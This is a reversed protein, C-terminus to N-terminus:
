TLRHLHLSEGSGKSSMCMVNTHLSLGVKLVTVRSSVDAHIKLLFKQACVHYM